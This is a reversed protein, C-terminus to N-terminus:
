EKPFSIVYRETELYLFPKFPVKRNHTKNAHQEFSLQIDDKQFAEPQSLAHPISTQHTKLFLLLTSITLAVFVVCRLISTPSLCEIGM